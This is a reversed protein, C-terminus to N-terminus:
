HEATSQSPTISASCYIGDGLSKKHGLLGLVVLVLFLWGKYCMPVGCPVMVMTTKTELLVEWKFTFEVKMPSFFLM